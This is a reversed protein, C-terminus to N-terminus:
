PRAGPNMAQHLVEVVHRIAMSGGQAVAIGRLHILCSLDTAVLERTGARDIERLRDRGMAISLNVFSASFTGGFGCCEEAREAQVVSLGDIRSLLHKAAHDSGTGRLGHCASHLCVTTELHGSIDEAHDFLFECIEVVALDHGAPRNHTLHVTCSSSLVVVTGADEHSRFWAQTVDSGQRQCGSNSLPQGCCVAQTRVRVEHGLSELLHVAAIGAQPHLYDVYCPVFLTLVQAPTPM